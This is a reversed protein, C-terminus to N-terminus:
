GGGGRIAICNASRELPHYGLAPALAADALVAPFWLPGLAMSLVGHAWEHDVVGISPEEAAGVPWDSQPIDYGQEQTEMECTSGAM